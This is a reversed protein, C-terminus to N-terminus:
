GLEVFAVPFASGPFEHFPITAVTAYHAAQNTASHALRPQKTAFRFEDDRHLFEFSDLFLLLLIFFISSCNSMVTSAVFAAWSASVFKISFIAGAMPFSNGDALEASIAIFSGSEIKSDFTKSILDENRNKNSRISSVAARM